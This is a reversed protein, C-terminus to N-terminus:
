KIKFKPIIEAERNIMTKENENIERDYVKVEQGEEDIMRVEDFLDLETDIGNKILENDMKEIVDVPVARDRKKNRDLCIEKPTIMLLCVVRAGKRKFREVYNRRFEPAINVSDWIFSKEEDVSKEARDSLEKFIKENPIEQNGADGTLEERLKDSSFIPIGLEVSKKEAVYSKGSGSIGVMFYITSNTPKPPTKTM